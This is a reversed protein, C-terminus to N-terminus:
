RFTHNCELLLEKLIERDSDRLNPTDVKTDNIILSDSFFGKNININNINKHYYKIRDQTINHIYIAEDTVLIGDSADGSITADYCFIPLEGDKIIAYKATAKLIKNKAKESAHAFYVNTNHFNYTLKLDDLFRRVDAEYSDDNDYFDVQYVHACKIITNIGITFKGLNKIETIIPPYREDKLNYVYIGYAIKSGELEVRKIDTLNEFFVLDDNECYGIRKDTLFLCIGACYYFLLPYEHSLLKFNKDFCNKGDKSLTIVGDDDVFSVYKGFSDHPTFVDKFAHLIYENM